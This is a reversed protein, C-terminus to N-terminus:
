FLSLLKLFSLILFSFMALLHWFLTVRERWRKRAGNKNGAEDQQIIKMHTILTDRCFPATLVFPVRHVISVFRSLFDVRRLPTRILAESDLLRQDQPAMEERLM